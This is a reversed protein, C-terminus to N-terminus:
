TAGTPLQFNQVFSPDLRVELEDRRREILSTLMLQLRQTHPTHDDGVFAAPMSRLIRAGWRGYKFKKALYGAFGAVHQHRVVARPNFVMLGKGRSLRLSFERDEVSPLPFSEDFGGALEFVQRRFAASYGDVFNIFAKRALRAYKEEYEAQVFRPVVGAQDTRYAGKVGVVRADSFPRLMEGLWQPEPVCDDDLFILFEGAAQAAGRNRASGPGRHPQRLLRVGPVAAVTDPPIEASGDEVVLIEPLEGPSQCTLAELLGPLRSAGDRSPIVVTARVGTALPEGTGVKETVM